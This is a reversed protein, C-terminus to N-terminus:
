PPRGNRDDPDVNNGNADDCDADMRDENNHDVGGGGGGGGRSLTM